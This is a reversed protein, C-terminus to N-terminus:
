AWGVFSLQRGTRVGDRRYSHYGVACSTCPGLVEVSTVGAAALLLRAATRLDVHDRGARTSWAEETTRGTRTEFAQRVEPGVEYCCGGIAPGIVAEITGAGAGSVDTLKRLAEELVGAASGRWGAHVAAAVGRRPEVLLVPVCDATVVGVLLGPQATVLGDAEPGEGVRANVVTTGHVQCPIAIPFPAGVRALVAPWASRECEARDLFGHVLGPLSRWPAHTLM